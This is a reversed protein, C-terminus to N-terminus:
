LVTIQYYGNPTRIEYTDENIKKIENEEKECIMYAYSPEISFSLIVGSKFIPEVVEYVIVNKTKMTTLDKIKLKIGLKKWGKVLTCFDKFEM